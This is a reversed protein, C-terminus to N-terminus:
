PTTVYATNTKFDALGWTQTTYGTTYDDTATWAIAAMRMGAYGSASAGHPIYGQVTFTRTTGAAVKDFLVATSGKSSAGSVSSSTVLAGGYTADFKSFGAVSPTATYAQVKITSATDVFIDSGAPATVNFVLTYNGSKNVTGSTSEDIQTATQSVMTLTPAYRFLNQKYGTVTTSTNAATYNAGSTGTTATIAATVGDGATTGYGIAAVQGWVSLTKTASPDVNINLSTFSLAAAGAQSALVTAGDRLEVSSVCSACTGTTVLTGTIATVNVAGDTAKLDFDMLKVPTVVGSTASLGSVSQAVPSSASLTDTMTGTAASANALNLIWTSAGVDATDSIGAGDTTRIQVGNAAIAITGSTGAVASPRSINFSLVKTTGVPVVFNLGNFQLQYASGATVETVTSASLPITSLVNSGDLLSVSDALLWIRPSATGATLNIWVRNVTMNSGTAKIKLGFATKNEGKNIATSTAPVSDYTVTASGEGNSSVVVGTSCSAGTTPSFGATSTCGAPLTSVGSSCSVGTTPSFGASSTCGAPYVGSGNCPAGTTASFGSFSSCGAPYTGGVPNTINGNIAAIASARSMAGLVGDASLNRSAQWIKAAAESLPGFKGDAVLNASSYNNLFKQWILSSQGSSGSRVTQAYQIDSASVTAQQANAKPALAVAGAVLVAVLMIGLLFKSKLLKSM